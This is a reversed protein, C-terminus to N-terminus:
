QLLVNVEVFLVLCQQHNAVVGKLITLFVFLTCRVHCFTPQCIVEFESM